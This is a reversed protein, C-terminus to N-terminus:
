GTGTSAATATKGARDGNGARRGTTQGARGRGDDQDCDTRGRKSRSCDAAEQKAIPWWRNAIPRGRSRPGGGAQFRGVEPRMGVLATRRGSPRPRTGADEARGRWRRATETEFWARPAQKLGYLSRRLHCVMGDLVSYGPLPQM